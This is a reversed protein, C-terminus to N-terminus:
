VTTASVTKRTSSNIIWLPLTYVWLPIPIPAAWPCLSKNKM